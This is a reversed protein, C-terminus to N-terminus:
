LKFIENKDNSSSISFISKGNKKIKKERNDKTIKKQIEYNKIFRGRRPRLESIM